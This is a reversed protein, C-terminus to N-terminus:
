LAYNMHGSPTCTVQIEKGTLMPSEVTCSVSPTVPATMLIMDPLVRIGVEHKLSLFVPDRLNLHHLQLASVGVQVVEVVLHTSQALARIVETVLCSCQGRGPHNNNGPICEPGTQFTLKTM